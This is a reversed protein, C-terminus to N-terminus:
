VSNQVYSFCASSQPSFTMRWLGAKISSPCILLHRKEQGGLLPSPPNIMHETLLSWLGFWCLGWEGTSLVGNFEKQPRCVCLGCIQKDWDFSARQYFDLIIETKGAVAQQLNESFSKPPHHTVLIDNWRFTGVTPSCLSLFVNAGVTDCTIYM